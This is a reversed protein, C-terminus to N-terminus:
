EYALIEGAKNTLLSAATFKQHIVKGQSFANHVILLLCVIVKFIRQMM